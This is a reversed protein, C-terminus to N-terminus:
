LGEFRAESVSSMSMNPGLGAFAPLPTLYDYVYDVRVRVIDGELWSPSPPCAVFAGGNRSCTVTVTLQSQDLLSATARVRDQIEQVNADVAGLRAGERSANQSSDWAHYGFGFEIIGLVLLMLLPFILAFEVAVAGREGRPDTSPAGEEGACRRGRADVVMAGAEVM